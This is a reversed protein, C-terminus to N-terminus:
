IGKRIRELLGSDVYKKIATRSIGAAEVQSTKVFGNGEAAISKIKNYIEDM